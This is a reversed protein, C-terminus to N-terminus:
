QKVGCAVFGNRQTAGTHTICGCFANKTSYIVRDAGPPGGTYAKGQKLPYEVYEKSDCYPLKVGERNGFRHPYGRGGFVPSPNTKNGQVMAAEVDAGSYQVSACNCSPWSALVVSCSLLLLTVLKLMSAM